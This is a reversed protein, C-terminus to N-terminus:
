NKLYMFVNLCSQCQESPIWQIGGLSLIVCKYRLEKIHQRFMGCPLTVGKSWLEKSFLPLQM